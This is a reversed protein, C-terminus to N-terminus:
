GLRRLARVFTQGYPVGLGTMDDYGPLTVQGTYGEM